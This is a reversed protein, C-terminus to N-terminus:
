QGGHTKGNWNCNARESRSRQRAREVTTSSVPSTNEQSSNNAEEKASCAAFSTMVLAACLAFALKQLGKKMFDRGKVPYDGYNERSSQERMETM